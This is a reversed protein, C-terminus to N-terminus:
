ILVLTTDVSLVNHKVIFLNVFLKQKKTTTIKGENGWTRPNVSSDIVDSALPTVKGHTSYFYVFSQIKYYYKGLGSFFCFAMSRKNSGVYNIVHKVNNMRCIKVTM